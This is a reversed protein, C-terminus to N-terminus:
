LTTAKVREIQFAIYAIQMIDKRVFPKVAPSHPIKEVGMNVMLSCIRLMEEYSMLEKRSLWELGMNPCALLFLAPQV